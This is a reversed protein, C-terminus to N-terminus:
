RNYFKLENTNDTIAIKHNSGNPDDANFIDLGNPGILQQKNGIFDFRYFGINSVMYVFIRSTLMM